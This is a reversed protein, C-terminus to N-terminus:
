NEVNRYGWVSMLNDIKEQSLKNGVLSLYEKEKIMLSDDELIAKALNKGKETLKFTGNKLQYILSDAMAFKVARNVVPEFRVIMYPVDENLYKELSDMYSKTSLATSLIHLKILHCGSRSGCCMMIILCIQSLKYSVRYNYPVADPKSDFIIEDTLLLNDM